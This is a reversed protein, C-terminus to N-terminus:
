IPYNLVYGAVTAFEDPFIIADAIGFRNLITFLLILFFNILKESINSYPLLYAIKYNM